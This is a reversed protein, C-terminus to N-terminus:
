DGIGCSKDCECGCNSPNWIFGKDCIGKDILKKCECRCKDENLRQKYRCVNADLRCKCKCTKHREIQRTENTISILNFVKASINKIIEPVCLKAYPNNITSCSSKCKNITISYRYFVPEDTNVSVIESRIKCKQNNMLVCELSNVSLTNFAIGNFRFLTMTTFFM